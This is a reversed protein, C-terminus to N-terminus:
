ETNELEAEPQADAAGDGNAAEPVPEDPAEEIMEAARNASFGTGAPILHVM